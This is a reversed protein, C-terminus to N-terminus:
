SPQALRRHGDGCQGCCRASAGRRIAASETAGTGGAAVAKHERSFRCLPGGLRVVRESASGGLPMKCSPVFAARDDAARQNPM